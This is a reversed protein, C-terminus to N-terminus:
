IHVTSINDLIRSSVGSSIIVAQSNLIQQPYSDKDKNDVIYLITAEHSLESKQKKIYKKFDQTNHIDDKDTRSILHYVDWPKGISDQKNEYLIFDKKGHNSYISREKMSEPLTNMTCQYLNIVKMSVPLFFFLKKLKRLLGNHNTLSQSSENMELKRASMNIAVFRHSKIINPLLYKGLMKLLIGKQRWPKSIKFDCLYWYPPHNDPKVLIACGAGVIESTNTDVQSNLYNLAVFYHPEGLQEFFSFYDTAETENAHIDINNCGTGHVITFYSGTDANLPYSFSTEFIKLKDSYEKREVEDLLNIQHLHM